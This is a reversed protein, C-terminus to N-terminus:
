KSKDFILKLGNLLISKRNSHQAPPPLQCLPRPSRLTSRFIRVGYGARNSAINVTKALVIGVLGAGAWRRKSDGSPVQGAAAPHTAIM